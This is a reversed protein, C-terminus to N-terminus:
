SDDSLLSSLSLPFYLIGYPPITILSAPNSQQTVLCAADLVSACSAVSDSATLSAPTVQQPVLVLFM